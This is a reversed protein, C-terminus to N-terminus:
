SIEVKHVMSKATKNDKDSERRAMTCEAICELFIAKIEKEIVEVHGRVNEPLIMMLAEGELKKAEKMKDLFERNMYIVMGKKMVQLSQAAPV